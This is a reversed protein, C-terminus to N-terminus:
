VTAALIDYSWGLTSNRLDYYKGKKMTMTFKKISDGKLNKASLTKTAVVKGNVTLKFKVKFNKLTLIHTNIYMGKMMLKSGSYYYKIPRVYEAISSYSKVNESYHWKYQNTAPKVAKSTAKKKTATCKAVIKIKKKGVGKKSIKVLYSAKGKNKVTKLKKNGAYVYFTSVGAVQQATPVKILVSVQNKNLKTVAPKSPKTFGAITVTKEVAKGM